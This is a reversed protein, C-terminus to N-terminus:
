TDDQYIILKGREHLTAFIRELSTKQGETFPLRTWDSYSKFVLASDEVLLLLDQLASVLAPRVQPPMHASSALSIRLTLKVLANSGPNVARRLFDLLTAWTQESDEFRVMWVVMGLSM